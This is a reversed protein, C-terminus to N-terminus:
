QLVRALRFFVKFIFTLQQNTYIFNFILYNREPHIPHFLGIPHPSGKTIDGM